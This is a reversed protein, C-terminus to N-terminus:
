KLAKQSKLTTNGIELIRIKKDNIENVKKYNFYNSNFIFQIKIIFCKKKSDDLTSIEYGVYFVTVFLASKVYGFQLVMVNLYVLINQLITLM